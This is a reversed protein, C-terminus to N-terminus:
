KLRSQTKQLQSFRISLMLGITRGMGNIGSGHTRYDTNFINNLYTRIIIRELQFGAYTNVLNFGPAGGIPIRNDAKDAAALRRQPSSHDYTLGVFFQGKAYDIGLRANFPPMRRLPEKKTISEGYLYTANSHIALYKSLLYHSQIELGRIFGKDVNIKKYVDYGGLVNPTKIRTILDYLRINFLSLETSFKTAAYKIGVEQNLSREPKLNYTPIEYRFDVVGLTGLDDLNPARFGESLNSFVHINDSLKYSIAGQFVMAEPSLKISGLTEDLLSIKYMNYRLGVEATFRGFQFHNM